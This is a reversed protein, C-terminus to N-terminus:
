LGFQEKLYNKVELMRGKMKEKLLQPSYIEIDPLWQMILPIVEMEHSIKAKVKLRGDKLRLNEQCPLLLKSSLFDAAQNKAILVISYQEKTNVGWISTASKLIKQIEISEPPKFEKLMVELSIIKDLRYKLLVEKKTPVALIYLFTDSTLIKLPKLLFEKIETKSPYKVKIYKRNRVAYSIEEYLSRVPPTLSRSNIDYLMPETSGNSILRAFISNFAEALPGGIAALKDRMMLLVYIQEDTLSLQTLSTGPAFSYTGKKESVLAFGTMNIREIDRQISRPSM